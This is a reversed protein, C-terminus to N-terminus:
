LFLKGVQLPLAGRCFQLLDTPFQAVLPKRLAEDLAAIRRCSIPSALPWIRPTVGFISVSSVVASCGSGKQRRTERPNRRAMHVLDVAQDIPM